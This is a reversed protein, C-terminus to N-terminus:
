KLVVKKNLDYRDGAKLIHMVMNHARIGQSPLTEVKAKTADYLIVSREGIVEFSGDPSFLVATSEDIGIGVLHPNEAVLSLLRNHRKRRVFHQDVIANKVFGFGEVTVINGAEITQFENGSEVERNEDGTIMIESMVAAGASTGGIVCGNQFHEHMAKLFPTGMLIATLRVQVGGSFFIGGVGKLIKISKEEMALDRDLIHYGVEGAGLKKLAQAQEAGVEVPVSSAMPLVIIKGANFRSALEIFKKMMYDPRKGGGIAFIYGKPQATALQSLFLLASLAFGSILRVKKM